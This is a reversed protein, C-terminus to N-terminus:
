EIEDPMDYKRLFVRYFTDIKKTIERLKVLDDMPIEGNTTQDLYFDWGGGPQTEALVKGIRIGFAGGGYDTVIDCEAILIMLAVLKKWMLTAYM